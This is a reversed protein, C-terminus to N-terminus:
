SKKPVFDFIEHSEFKDVLRNMWDYYELSQHLKTIDSKVEMELEQSLNENELLDNLEHLSKEIASVNIIVGNRWKITMFDIFTQYWDEQVEYYDKRSGKVWVKDVMNIDMLSRVSTSMSTKSMELEHKMGDLSMPQNQFYLLGWLRGVSPTVGYLNMNQSIAEIVRERAKEIIEKDHL